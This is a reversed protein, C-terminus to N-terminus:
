AFLKSFNSWFFNRKKPALKKEFRTYIPALPASLVKLFSLTPQGLISTMFLYCFPVKAQDPSRIGSSAFRGSGM